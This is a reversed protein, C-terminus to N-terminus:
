LCISLDPYLERRAPITSVFAGGAPEAFVLHAFTPPGPSRENPASIVSSSLRVRDADGCENTKREGRVRGSELDELLV